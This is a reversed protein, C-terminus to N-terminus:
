KGQVSGSDGLYSPFPLRSDTHHLEQPSMRRRNQSGFRRGDGAISPSIKKSGFLQFFGIIEFPIAKQRHTRRCIAGSNYKKAKNKL